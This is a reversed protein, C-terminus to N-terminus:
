GAEVPPRQRSISRRIRPDIVQNTVWVYILSASVGAGILFVSYAISPPIEDRGSQYAAYDALGSMLLLNGIFIALLVASLGAAIRLRLRIARFVESNAEISTIM